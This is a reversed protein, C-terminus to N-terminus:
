SPALERQQLAILRWNDLAALRHHEAVRQYDSSEVIKRFEAFNSYEVVAVDDWKDDAPGVLAALVTGLFYVRVQCGLDTAVKQFAPAYRTFYAVQGSCKELDKRDGYDAVEKYRLINLMHVPGDQVPSSLTNLNELNM